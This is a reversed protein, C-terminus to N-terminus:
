RIFETYVVRECIASRLKSRPKVAIPKSSRRAVGSAGASVSSVKVTPSEAGQHLQLIDDVRGLHALVRLTPKGDEKRYPEVIRWYRIGHSQYAQLCAM